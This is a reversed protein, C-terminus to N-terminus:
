EWDLRVPVTGEISGPLWRGGDEEVAAVVLAGSEVARHVAAEMQPRHNFERTGLSLNIVAAGLACSEDLARILTSVGTTLRQWFIKIPLIQADPVKERIAATIATGHGVRDLFDEDLSGDERIAIGQVIPAAAGPLDPLNRPDPLNSSPRPQLIHPHAAHLGSDTVAIRVGRGTYQHL